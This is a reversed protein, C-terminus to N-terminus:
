PNNKLQIPSSKGLRAVQTSPDWGLHQVFLKQFQCLKACYRVAGFDFKTLKKTKM